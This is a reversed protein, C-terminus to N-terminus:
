EIVEDARGLLPLPVTIGLSKATKLNLFMEVKTVQQVPLEAPREGKLIRGTYDGVLRYSDRNSSGYSMLGGAIVDERFPYIAPIRYRNALTVLQDRVSIFFPDTGILFAGVRQAVIKAFAEEIEPASSANLILLRLGLVVAAGQLGRIELGSFNPNTPNRLFAIEEATPMLEHILQLRKAVTGVALASVGTMNGGPRRLSEVFGLEVPDAGVMFVIPITSTAGKAAVAAATGDAAVMVAVRRQVLDAALPPLRENRGEAWRFEITVNRGEVYGAEALGQYFAAIWDRRTDKSAPNLFGVAPLRSQQARAALSWAAAGGLTALFKRREIHSAM